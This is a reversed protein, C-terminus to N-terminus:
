TMDHLVRGDIGHRLVTSEVVHLDSSGAWIICSTASSEEYKAEVLLCVDKEFPQVVETM